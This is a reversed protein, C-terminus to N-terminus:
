WCCGDLRGDVRMTRCHLRWSKANRWWWEGFYWKLAQLNEFSPCDVVANWAKVLDTRRKERLNETDEIADTIIIHILESEAALGELQMKPPKPHLAIWLDGDGTQITHERDIEALIECSVRYSTVRAENMRKHYADHEEGYELMAGPCFQWTAAWLCNDPTCLEAMSSEAIIRESEAAVVDETLESHEVDDEEQEQDQEQQLLLLPVHKNGGHALPMLKDPQFSPAFLEVQM